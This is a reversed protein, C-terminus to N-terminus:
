SSQQSNNNPNRMSFHNESNSPNIPSPPNSIRNAKPHVIIEDQKRSNCKTGTLLSKHKISVGRGVSLRREMLSYLGRLRESFTQFKPHKSKLRVYLIRIRRM